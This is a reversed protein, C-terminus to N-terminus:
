SAFREPPRTGGSCFRMMWDRSAYGSRPPDGTPAAMKQKM